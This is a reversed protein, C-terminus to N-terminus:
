PNLKKSMSAKVTHIITLVLTEICLYIPKSYIAIIITFVISHGAMCNFRNLIFVYYLKGNSEMTLYLLLNSPKVM